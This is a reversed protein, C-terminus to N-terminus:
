EGKIGLYTSRVQPLKRKTDKTACMSGKRVVGFMSRSQVTDLWLAVPLATLFPQGCATVGIFHNRTFLSRFTSAALAEMRGDIKREFLSRQEIAFRGLAFPSLRPM